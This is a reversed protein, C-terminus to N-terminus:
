RGQRTISWGAEHFSRILMQHQGRYANPPALQQLQVTVGEDWRYLVEFVRLREPDLDLILGHQPVFPLVVKRAADFTETKVLPFHNGILESEMSVQLLCEYETM